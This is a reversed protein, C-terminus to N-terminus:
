KSKKFASGAKVNEKVKAAVPKVDGLAADLLSSSAESLKQNFGARINEVKIWKTEDWQFCAELTKGGKAKIGEYAKFVWLANLLEEAGFIASNPNNQDKSNNMSFLMNGSRNFQRLVGRVMALEGVATDESVLLRVKVNALFKGWDMEYDSVTIQISLVGNSGAAAFMKMANM